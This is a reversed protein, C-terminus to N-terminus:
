HSRVRPTNRERSSAKRFTTSVIYRPVGAPLEEPEAAPDVLVRAVREWELQDIFAISEFEQRNGNPAHIEVESLMRGVDIIKQGAPTTDLLHEIEAKEMDDVSLGNAELYQELEHGASLIGTLRPFIDLGYATAHFVGARQRRNDDTVDELKSEGILIGSHYFTYPM